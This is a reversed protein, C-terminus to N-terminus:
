SGSRRMGCRRWSWVSPGTCRCGNWGPTGRLLPTVDGQHMSMIESAMRYPGDGLRLATLSPLRDAVATLPEISSRGDSALDWGDVLLAGAREAGPTECFQELLVRLDEDEPWWHLAWARGPELKKREGPYCPVLPLGAFREDKRSM